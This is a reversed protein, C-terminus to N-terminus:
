ETWMYPIDPPTQGRTNTQGLHTDALPNDAKPHRGLEWGGAGSIAVEKTLICGISIYEQKLFTQSEFCSFMISSIPSFKWIQSMFNRM